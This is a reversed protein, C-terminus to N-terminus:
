FNTKHRAKVANMRHGYFGLTALNFYRTPATCSTYIALTRNNGILAINLELSMLIAKKNSKSVAIIIQRQATNVLMTVTVNKYIDGTTIANAIQTMFAGGNHSNSM